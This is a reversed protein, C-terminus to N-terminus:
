EAEVATKKAKRAKREARAVRAIEREKDRQIELNFRDRAARMGVVFGLVAGGLLVLPIFILHGSTM